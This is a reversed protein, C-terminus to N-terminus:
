DKAAAEVEERGLGYHQSHETRPRIGGHQDLFKNHLRRVLDGYARPAFVFVAGDNADVLVVRAVDNLRKFDSDLQGQWVKHRKVRVMVEAAIRTVPDVIHLSGHGRLDVEASLNELSLAAAASHLGYARLSSKSIDELKM